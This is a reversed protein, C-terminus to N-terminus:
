THVLIWIQNWLLTVNTTNYLCMCESQGVLIWESRKRACKDTGRIPLAATADGSEVTVLCAVVKGEGRLRCWWEGGNGFVECESMAKKFISIKVINTDAGRNLKDKKDKKTWKNYQKQNKNKEAVNQLTIPPHKKM